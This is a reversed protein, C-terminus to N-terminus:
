INKTSTSMNEPPPLLRVLRAEIQSNDNPAGFVVVFDNIKLDEQRISKDLSRIQTDSKLLINKEVNDPGSVVFTPLSLSVIKGAAGHGELFGGRIPMSSLRPGRGYFVHYYNDGFRYSFAARRYGVFVGAQFIVLIIIATVIGIVVGRFAKSQIFEKINKM